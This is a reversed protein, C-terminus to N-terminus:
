SLSELDRKAQEIMGFLDNFMDGDPCREPKTIKRHYYAEARNILERLVTAADPVAGPVDYGYIPLNCGDELPDKDRDFIVYQYGPSLAPSEGSPVCSRAWALCDWLDSPCHDPRNEHAYVIFMDDGLAAGMVGATGSALAAATDLTLRSMALVCTNRTEVITTMPPSEKEYINVTPCACPPGACTQWHRTEARSM